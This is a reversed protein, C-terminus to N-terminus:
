FVAGIFQCIPMAGTDNTAGVFYDSVVEDISTPPFHIRLISRVLKRTAVLSVARWILRRMASLKMRRWLGIDRASRALRDPKCRLVTDAM